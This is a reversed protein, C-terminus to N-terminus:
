RAKRMNDIQRALPEIDDFLIPIKSKFEALLPISVQRFQPHTEQTTRMIFLHRWSRLNETIIMRSNLALPFVSRAEQPRWGKAILKQYSAEAFEIAALWDPDYGSYDPRPYVFAAPQKKAYNVFRTSEITYSAIRHRTIEQQIGRDHEMDVTASAHEAISWDGHGLVVTELFRKWSDETQTEESRHSIRGCWEIKKLLKIGADLDPVDMLKAYPKVINM